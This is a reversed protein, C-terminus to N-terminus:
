REIGDCELLIVADYIGEVGPVHRISRACPLGQYILPVPDASVMDVQKGLRDLIMGCALVSGVTDGDPRAHASVLFRRGREISQLVAQIDDHRHM